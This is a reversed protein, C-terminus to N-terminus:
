APTSEALYPSFRHYITPESELTLLHSRSSLSVNLIVLFLFFVNAINHLQFWLNKPIFSLPTYKATRIKNRTYRTSPHGNEDLYEAPLPVNFYLKRPGAGDSESSTSKSDDDEQGEQQHQQQDDQRLSESGASARKKETAAAANHRGLLSLRKLSSSKVTMKRTAWRSRKTKGPNTAHGAGEDGDKKPAM